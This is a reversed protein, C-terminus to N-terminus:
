ATALRLTKLEEAGAISKKVRFYLTVQHAAFFGYIYLRQGWSYFVM